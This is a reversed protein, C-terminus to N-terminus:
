CWLELLSLVVNETNVTLKPVHENMKLVNM